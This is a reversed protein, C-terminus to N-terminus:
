IRPWKAYGLIFRFNTLIEHTLFLVELQLTFLLYPSVITLDYVEEVDASFDCTKQNKIMDGVFIVKGDNLM